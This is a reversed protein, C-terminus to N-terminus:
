GGTITGPESVSEGNIIVDFGSTGVETVNIDVNSMIVLEWTSGGDPMDIATTITADAVTYTYELVLDNEDGASSGKTIRATTVGLTTTSVKKLYVTETKTSTAQIDTVTIGDKIYSATLDTTPNVTITDGARSFSTDGSTGSPLRIAASNQIDNLGIKGALFDVGNPYIYQEATASMTTESIDSSESEDGNAGIDLYLLGSGLSSKVGDTGSRTHGGLAYEGANVPIEFYYVSRLELPASTSGTHNPNMIWDLDFALTAQDSKSGSSTGDSYEYIYSNGDQYIKQIKKIEEITNDPNRTIEHLSFFYTPSGGVTAAFFSIKGKGALQFDICSEPMEYNYTTKGNIKAVPATMLHEKSIESQIFRLGYINGNGNALITELQERAAAYKELGLSSPDEILCFNDGSTATRTYVQLEDKELDITDESSSKGFAKYIESLEYYTVRFDVATSAYSGGVFYGTNNESISFNDDEKVNIPFYSDRGQTVTKTYKIESNAQAFTGTAQLCWKTGDYSLYQAAGNVKLTDGDVTWTNVGSPATVLSAGNTDVSLYYKIDTGPEVTYLYGDTDLAWMTTPVSAATLATSNRNLYQVSEEEKMFIWYANEANLTVTNDGGPVTRHGGVDYYSVSYSNQLITYAGNAGYDHYRITRSYGGSDTTKISCVVSNNFMNFTRIEESVYTDIRATDSATQTYVTDLRNYLANIGISGGWGIDDGGSGGSSDDLSGEVTVKNDQGRYAETCYGVLSFDSMNTYDDLCSVSAISITTDGIVGVNQVTGNVYGAVIGILSQDTQTKVTLDDIYLDKVENAQSSYSYTDGPLAGVVGFLGIIEVNEVENVDDMVLTYPLDKISTGSGNVKNTVTLGTVTHGCGDFNGLFPNTSTGIPPLVYGTMDIDASLYFYTTPITTTGEEPQNFYGMYQLWALNYFQEATKIEYACGDEIVINGDDDYTAQEPGKGDGSEFYKTLYTVAGDIQNLNVKNSNYYWAFTGGVLLILATCVLAIMTVIRQKNM